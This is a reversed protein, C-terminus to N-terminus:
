KSGIKGLTRIDKKVISDVHSEWQMNDQITVGLHKKTTVNDLIEGHLKYASFTKHRKKHSQAILVETSSIEQVM